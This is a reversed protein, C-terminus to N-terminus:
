GECRAVSPMCGGADWVALFEEKKELLVDATSVVVAVGAGGEVGERRGLGVGEGAGGPFKTLIVATTPGENEKISATDGKAVVVDAEGHVSM